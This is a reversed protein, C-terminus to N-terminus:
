LNLSNIQVFSIKNDNSSINRNVEKQFLKKTESILNNMELQQSSCVWIHNFDEEKDECFPCLRDKYISNLSKRVQMICPIEEILLQIKWRKIKNFKFDIQLEKQEGKLIAFTMECDIELKHYKGNRNLNLFAELNIINTM